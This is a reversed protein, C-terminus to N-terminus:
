ENFGSTQNNFEKRPGKEQGEGKRDKGAQSETGEAGKRDGKGKAEEQVRCGEGQTGSLVIRYSSTQERGGAVASGNNKREEVRETSHGANGGPSDEMRLEKQRYFPHSALYGKPFVQEM